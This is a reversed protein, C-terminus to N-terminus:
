RKEGRYMGCARRWRMRKSKMVRMINPSSYLNHHGETHLKTWQATVKVTEPRFINRLVMNAFVRLGHVEKVTVSWAECGHFGFPLTRTSYIKIKNILCSFVFSEPGFPLLCKRLLLLVCVRVVYNPM